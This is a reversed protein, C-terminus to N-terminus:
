KREPFKINMLNAFLNDIRKRMEDYIERCRYCADYHHTCHEYDLVLDSFSQCEQGCIDCKVIKM